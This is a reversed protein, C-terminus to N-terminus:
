DDHRRQQGTLGLGMLLAMVGLGVIGAHHDNGTQPLKAAHVPQQVSAQPTVHSNNQRTPQDNTSQSSTTPRNTPQCPIPQPIPQSPTVPTRPLSEHDKVLYITYTQNDYTANAPIENTKFIKRSDNASVFKYDRGQYSFSKNKWQGILDAWKDRIEQSLKTNAEGKGFEKEVVTQVPQGQENELVVQYNVGAQQKAPASALYITVLQDVSSNHDFTQPLSMDSVKLKGNNHNNVVVQYTQGRYSITKYRQNLYNQWTQKVDNAVASDSPGTALQTPSVLTKVYQGDSNELIVQYNLRQPEVTYVVDIVQADQKDDYRGVMKTDHTQWDNWTFYGQFGAKTKDPHYGAIAPSDVDYWAMENGHGAEPNVNLWPGQDDNVSVFQGARVVDPAAQRGGVRDYWYRIVQKVTKTEPMTYHGVVSGFNNPVGIVFRPNKVFQYGAENNAGLHPLLNKSDGQKTLTVKWPNDQLAKILGPDVMVGGVHNDAPYKNQIADPKDSEFDTIDEGAPPLLDTPSVPQWSMLTVASPISTAAGDLLEHAFGAYDGDIHVHYSVTNGSGTRTVTVKPRTVQDQVGLYVQGNVPDVGSTTSRGVIERQIDEQVRDADAFFYKVKANDAPKTVTMTFNNGADRTLVIGESQSPANLSNYGLVWTGDQRQYWWHAATKTATTVQLHENLQTQGSHKVKITVGSTGTYHGIHVDNQPHLENISQDTSYLQFSNSDLPAKDADVTQLHNYWNLLRITVHLGNIAGYRSAEDIFVLRYYGNTGGLDTTANVNNKLIAQHDVSAIYSNGSNVPVIYGVVHGESAVAIPTNKDVVQGYGLRETQGNASVTYPLGMKIDFYDGARLNKAQDRGLTFNFSLQTSGPQIPQNALKSGQQNKVRLDNVNDDTILNGVNKQVTPVDADTIAQQAHDTQTIAPQAALSVTKVTVPTEEPAEQNATPQTTVDAAATSQSVGLYITTSLLVSAVGISLKRLAYHRHLAGYDKDHNNKSLM